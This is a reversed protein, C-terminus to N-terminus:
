TTVEPLYPVPSLGGPQYLPHVPSRSMTMAICHVAHGQRRLANLILRGRDKAKPHAGWAAVVLEAAQAAGLIREYNVAGGVPESARFLERPDAARFAYLNTVIIGDYGWQKAFGICRRITPDDQTADATSPNLMIWNVLRAGGDWMRTLRYRYRGDPSLDATRLVEGTGDLLGLQTM